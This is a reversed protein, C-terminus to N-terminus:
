FKAGKEISITGYVGGVGRFTELVTCTPEVRILLSTIGDKCFANFNRIEAETSICRHTYYSNGAAARDDNVAIVCTKFDSSCFFYVTGGNFFRNFTRYNENLFPTSYSSYYGGDIGHCIPYQSYLTDWNAGLTNKKPQCLILDLKQDISSLLRFSQTQM